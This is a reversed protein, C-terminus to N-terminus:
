EKILRNGTKFAQEKLRNNSLVYDSLLNPHERFLLQKNIPYSNVGSEFKRCVINQTSSKKKTTQRYAKGKM